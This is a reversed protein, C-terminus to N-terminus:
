WLMMKGDWSNVPLLSFNKNNESNTKEEDDISAANTKGETLSLNKCCKGIVKVGSTINSIGTSHCSGIMLFSPLLLLYILKKM